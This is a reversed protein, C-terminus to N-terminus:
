HLDGRNVKCWRAHFAEATGMHRGCKPCAGKTGKPAKNETAPDLAKNEPAAGADKANMHAGNNREDYVAWGQGLFTSALSHTIGRHTETIRIRESTIM